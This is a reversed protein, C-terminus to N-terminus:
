SGGRPVEATPFECMCLCAHEPAGGLFRTLLPTTDAAAELMSMAGLDLPPAYSVRWLRGRQSGDPQEHGMQALETDTHLHLCCGHLLGTLEGEAGDENVATLSTMPGNIISVRNDLVGGGDSLVSQERLDVRQEPTRMTPRRVEGAVQLPPM